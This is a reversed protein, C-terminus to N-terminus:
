LAQYKCLRGTWVPVLSVVEEELAERHLLRSFTPLWNRKGHHQSPEIGGTQQLFLQKKRHISLQSAVRLAVLLSHSKRSTRKLASILSSMEAISWSDLAGLCNSPGEQCQIFDSLLKDRAPFPSQSIETRKHLCCNNNNPGRDPQSPM